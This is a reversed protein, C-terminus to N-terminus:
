VIKFILDKATFTAININKINCNLVEKERKKLNNPM